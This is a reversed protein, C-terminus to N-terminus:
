QSRRTHKPSTRAPLAKQAPREAECAISKVDKRKEPPLPRPPRKLAKRALDTLDRVLSVSRSGTIMRAMAAKPDFGPALFDILVRALALDGAPRPRRSHEM